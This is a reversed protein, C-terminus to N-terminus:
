CSYRASPEILHIRRSRVAASPRRGEKSSRSSAATGACGAGTAWCTAAASRTDRWRPWTFPRRASGELPALPDLEVGGLANEFRLFRVVDAWFMPNAKAAAVVDRPSLPTKARNAKKVNRYRAWMTPAAGSADLLAELMDLTSPWSEVVGVVGVKELNYIARQLKMAPAVKATKGHEVMYTIANAYHRRREAPNSAAMAELIKEVSDLHKDHYRLGSIWTSLPERM